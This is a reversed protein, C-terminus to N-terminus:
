SFDITFKEIAEEVSPYLGSRSDPAEEIFLELAQKESNYLKVDTIPENFYDASQVCFMKNDLKEFCRYIVVGGNDNIRWVNFQRYMVGGLEMRVFISLLAGFALM